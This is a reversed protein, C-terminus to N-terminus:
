NNNMARKIGEELSIKPIFFSHLRTVDAVRYKVGTPKERLYKIQPSYGFTKVMLKALQSFSTGIGTGLNIPGKVGNEVLYLTASVIDDVHIFDRVQRGNGWVYFPNNRERARQIFTPFPYDLDQDHGYGSFPRLVYVNGGYIETYQKALLEGTLKSWGYTMDPLGLRKDNTFSIDSERLKRHLSNQIAIPYAASSSFYVLKKPKTRLAWQFLEADLSLDQAVALPNNDITERGGIVAAFHFALDFTVDANRFYKRCDNNEKIDIGTLTNRRNDLRKWFHRGIFGKHGTILIKM